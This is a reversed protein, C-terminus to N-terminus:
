GERFFFCATIIESQMGERVVRKRRVRHGEKRACTQRDTQECSKDCLVEQKWDLIAMVFKKDCVRTLYSTM